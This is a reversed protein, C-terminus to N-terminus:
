VSVEEKLFFSICFCPWNSGPLLEDRTYAKFFFFFIGGSWLSLPSILIASTLNSDESQTKSGPALVSPRQAITHLWAPLLCAPAPCPLEPPELNKFPCEEGTKSGSPLSLWFAEGGMGDKNM